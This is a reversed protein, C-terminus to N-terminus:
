QNFPNSDQQMNTEMINSLDLIRALSCNDWETPCNSGPFLGFDTEWKKSCMAFVSSGNGLM